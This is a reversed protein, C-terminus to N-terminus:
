SSPAELPTEAHAPLFPSLLFTMAFIRACPAITSLTCPSMRSGRWPARHTIAPMSLAWQLLCQEKRPEM